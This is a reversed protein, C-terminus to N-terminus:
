VVYRSQFRSVCFNVAARTTAVSIVRPWCEVKPRSVYGVEEKKQKDKRRGRTSGERKGEEWMKRSRGSAVRRSARESARALSDNASIAGWACPSSTVASKTQWGGAVQKARKNFTRTRSSFLCLAVFLFPALVYSEIYHFTEVSYQVHLNSKDRSCEGRQSLFVLCDEKCTLINEDKKKIYSVVYM